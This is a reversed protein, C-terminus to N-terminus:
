LIKGYKKAKKVDMISRERRCKGCYWGPSYSLDYPLVWLVRYISGCLSCRHRLKTGEEEVKNALDEAVVSHYRVLFYSGGRRKVKLAERGRIYRMPSLKFDAWKVERM